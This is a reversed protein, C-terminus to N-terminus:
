SQEGDKGKRICDKCYGYIEVRADMARFGYKENMRDEYGEALDIDIPFIRHCSRCIAHHQLREHGYEYRVLGDDMTTSQLLLGKDVLAECNRYVTSLSLHEDKKRVKEYIEGATMPHKNHLAKLIMVRAKTRKMRKKVLIDEYSVM